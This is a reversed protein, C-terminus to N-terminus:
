ELVSEYESVLQRAENYIRYQKKVLNQPSVSGQYVEVAVRLGQDDYSYVEVVGRSADAMQVVRGLGDYVMTLLSKTAEVTSGPIRQIQLLNGQADYGGAGVGTSVGGMSAPLRNTAAMAAKETATMDYSLARTDALPIVQAAAVPPPVSGLTWNQVKWTHLNTRNGYADYGFTQLLGLGPSSASPHDKVYASELRGLEDNQYYDTGDSTLRGAGDYHYSWSALTGNATLYQMSNLRVQDDGYLFFSSPGGVMSMGVLGRHVPDYVLTTSGMGPFSVGNPLGKPYDYQLSQSSNGAYTRSSLFGYNPDYGLIQTFPALGPITLKHMSLRANVGEYALERTIGGSTAMVLKGRSPTGDNSGHDFDYHMDVPGVMSTLARLNAVSDYVSSVVRPDNSGFGYTTKWPKGAVDFEEYRTIGSEPQYIQTLRGLADYSWTRAPQDVGMSENYQQVSAIRGGADYGYTTLQGKADVVQVLRGVVDYRYITQLDVLSGRVEASKVTRIVQLGQAWGGYQNTTTVGVPSIVKTVRGRWDYETKTGRFEAARTEFSIDVNCIPCTSGAQPDYPAPDNSLVASGRRFSHGCSVSAYRAEAVLNAKVTDTAAGHNAWVTAGTQRGDKDYSYVRYSDSGGPDLRKELVLQGWSNYTLESSQAGRTVAVKTPSPYAYGTGIETGVQVSTLRGSADWGYNSVVGDPSTQSTVRGLADRAEKADWLVGSPKIASLFGYPDSYTYTAGVLGSLHAAGSPDTLIASQLLPMDARAQTSEGLYTFETKVQAGGEVGATVTKPLSTGSLFTRKMPPESFSSSGIVGPTQDNVSTTEDTIKPGSWLAADFTGVRDNTIGHKLDSYSTPNQSGLAQSYFDITLNPKQAARYKEETVKKWIFSADDWNTMEKVGLTGAEQDWSRTRTPYVDSGIAAFSGSSNGIRRTDWRDYITIIPAASQDAPLDLDANSGIVPYERVEEIKHKLHALTQMSALGDQTPEVFYSVSTSGPTPSGNQTWRTVADYFKTSLWGYNNPVPIPVVRTHTTTRYEGTNSDGEGISTVGWAHANWRSLDPVYGAWSNAVANPRYPYDGWTLSVNKGSSYNVQSLIPWAGTTDGDFHASTYSFQVSEGNSLNTMKIPFCSSSYMGWEPIHMTIPWSGLISPPTTITETVLDSSFYALAYAPADPIGAYTVQVIGATNATLGGVAPQAPTIAMQGSFKLSISLGTPMGSRSWRATFDLGNPTTNQTQIGIYNIGYDFEIVDAYKNLIRSLVYHGGRLWQKDKGDGLNAVRPLKIFVSDGVGGALAYEYAVDGQIVLICTPFTWVKSSMLPEPIGLEPATDPKRLGIILEDNSGMQIFNVRTPNPVAPSTFFPWSGIEWGQASGRGFQALLSDPNTAAPPVAGGIVGSKGTPLTYTSLNSGNRIDPAIIELTGPSFSSQGGSSYYTTQTDSQIRYAAMIETLGDPGMMLYPPEGMGANPDVYNTRSWGTASSRMYLAPAFLAGRAGIGPGMSLKMNVAGTSGEVELAGHFTSPGNSQDFKVTEFRTQYTQGALLTCSLCLLTRLFALNSM